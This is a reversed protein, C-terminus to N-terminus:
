ADDLVIPSPGIEAIGEFNSRDIQLRGRWISVDVANSLLRKPMIRLQGVPLFYHAGWASGEAQLIVTKGSVWFTLIQGDFWIEIRDDDASQEYGDPRRCM